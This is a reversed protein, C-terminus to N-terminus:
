CLEGSECYSSEPERLTIRLRSGKPALPFLGSRGLYTFENSKATAFRCNFPENKVCKVIKKGLEVRIEVPGRLTLYSERWVRFEVKVDGYGVLNSVKTYM